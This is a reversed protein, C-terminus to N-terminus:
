FTVQVGGFAAFGSAPIVSSTGFGRTLYEEDTLNELTLHFRWPGRSYSATADLLTYSDIAFANDEAIAQESVWRGGLGLGFGGPLRRSLWLNLIHEPTFAPVNGSRDVTAFTPPFFGVLVRETFETLEADTYAYALAVELGARPRATIELELGEARQDGTQQLVGTEDPIAVNERDIRFLALSGVARGGALEKRAGVEFQRSEEPRREERAVFTSPPAFARGANAYLALGRAPSLVVGVLPSLEGDTRDAGSSRDEFDIRDYRAGVLLQLKESFTIQDVAYPAVVVSRADAGFAQGPIPPVPDRATEIPTVIGIAPLVGADFTFEDALRAAELGLLLHHTVGGGEGGLRWLGELQNGAFDQRDDIELLTRALLLDGTPAPFVGNFITGRSLWDLRRYYSKNRLVFRDSLRSEVDVQFRYVEQESRDLPSQYSRERPVGPLTGAGTRPDFIVPLGSDPRYSLDAAELNVHVSTRGSPRWTFAPNIALHESQKDDRFGDSRRWIGNVRFAHRGDGGALNADATAEYTGFSGGAFGARTFDAALPQKRVLNVTAGLPSGGYLFSSPGKLVEVRDVNYLAYSTAEPEPAGDTLLLGSSVSDLGRVVFFDFIGSGRHVNMGSVNELADGLLFADQAELREATVVAVSAPTEALALPLKAAVTNATPIERLSGAVFVQDHVVPPPPEAEEGPPAAAEAQAEAPGAGEAAEDVQAALTGPSAAALALLLGAGLVAAPRRWAKPDSDDSM